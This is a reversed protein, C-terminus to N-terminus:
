AGKVAWHQADTLTRYRNADNPGGWIEWTFTNHDYKVCIGSEHRYVKRAKSTLAWEGSTTPRARRM